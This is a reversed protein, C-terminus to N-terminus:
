GKKNVINLFAKLPGRIPRIGNELNSIRTWHLDLIEGAEKQTRAGRWARLLKRLNKQTM